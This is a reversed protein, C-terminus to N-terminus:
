KCQFDLMRQNGAPSEQKDTVDYGGTCSKGAASYCGGWDNVPGSCDVSMLKQAANRVTVKPVSPDHALQACGTAGLVIMVISLLRM